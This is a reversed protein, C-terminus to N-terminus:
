GKGLQKKFVFWGLFFFASGVIVLLGVFAPPAKYQAIGLGLAGNVAAILFVAGALFYLYVTLSAKRWLRPLTLLAVGGLLLLVGLAIGVINVSPLFGALYTQGIGLICLVLAFVTILTPRVSRHSNSTNNAM